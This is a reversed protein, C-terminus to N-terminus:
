FLGDTNPTETIQQGIDWMEIIKDNSIRFLHVVAVEKEQPILILHSHVAVLDTDGIIHKITFQKSPFLVHNDKMAKQLAVFGSEFYMNHHKGRMDVYNKYAEDIKGSVVEQLFQMAIEKNKMLALPHQLKLIKQM